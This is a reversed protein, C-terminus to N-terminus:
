GRYGIPIFPIVSEDAIRVVAGKAYDSVEQLVNSNYLSVIGHLNSWLKLLLFEIDNEPINGYKGSIESIIVRGLEALKLATQKEKLAVPELPTDIYDYYKPVDLNFMINYYNNNQIGYAVYARCVAKLKKIPDTHISSVDVVIENLIEFGKILVMIYIEEKCSYYNYITKAAIGLRSALKRMSLYDYGSDSIIDLAEDLIKKRFEEVEGPTRKIKPM